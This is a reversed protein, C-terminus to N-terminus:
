QALPRLHEILWSLGENYRPGPRELIAQPDVTYIHHERVARLSHWPQRDLLGSLGTTPDTVIADPQLQILAEASYQPYAQTIQVANRAGALEVLTGMYSGKGAVIIPSANVVVLVRPRRRFHATRVLERTRAKLKEILAAASASHGTASGLQGIVRDIDGFSDDSYLKVKIGARSLDATLRAQAPIGVVLDPHLGIVRETDVSSFSGIMPLKAA